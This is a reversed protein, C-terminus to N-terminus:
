ADPAETESPRHGIASSPAGLRRSIRDAAAAVLPGATAEDPGNALLFSIGVAGCCGGTADFVPAALSGVAVATEGHDVAYGVARARALEADLRRRQGGGLRLQEVAESRHALLALGVATRRAPLRAGLSSALRPGTGVPDEKALTVADTGDLVAFHATVGLADRLGALEPRAAQVPDVRGLYAAGIEFARLGVVYGGRADGEVFGAAALARLLSHASSKPLALERALQGLRAPDPHAAITALMELARRVSHNGEGLAPALDAEAPEM